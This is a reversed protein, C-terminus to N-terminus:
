SSDGEKNPSSTRQAKADVDSSSAGTRQAFDSNQNESKSDSSQGDSKVSDSRQGDPKISDSRQGDIHSKLSHSRQGDSKISDPRQGDSKSDATQAHTDDPIYLVGDKGLIAGVGGEEGRPVTKLYKNKEHREAVHDHHNPDAQSALDLGLEEAMKQEEHQEEPSLERIGGRKSESQFESDMENREGPPLIELEKALQQFLIRAENDVNNLNFYAAELLRALALLYDAQGELHSFNTREQLVRVLEVYLQNLLPKGKLNSDKMLQDFKFSLQKSGDENSVLKIVDDDLNGKASGKNGRTIVKVEMHLDNSGVKMKYKGSTTQSSAEDPGAGPKIEVWESDTLEEANGAQSPTGERKGEPGAPHGPPAKGDVHIEESPAEEGDAKPIPKYTLIVEMEPHAQLAELLETGDKHFLFVMPIQVDQKGDGSMAFLPSTESSSGANHDIVIGGIAGAKIINRAKDIFMCDGRELIAIRGYLDDPNEVPGCGKFPKTVGVSGMLPPATKLDVGFQAPGASLQLHAIEDPFVVQILLPEHQAEHQQHKSLEIMEQMFLMGEEADLATAAESATHLLQVRGDSMTVLRIGMRRLAELQERNGAIFNIARLRPRDMNRKPKPCVTEVMDKLSKRLSDAYNRDDPFLYQTNPCTNHFGEESDEDDPTSELGEEDSSKLIYSARTIKIPSSGPTTKNVISLSLPLLHAETTFLFEDVDFLLDDKEAFLLYLYKFTEALVYSDMQDEHSGKTVDRIAAFGCPVRAHEELNEMVKKGVDLYHHDGTAKYLFYTSEVFEPRLPHQGWHVRFDTTFAEPLFNHRQMVQYLMEHTEIAPRIDGKLVQLGPWFALLSDMYHRSNAQPKHMQVDVLLPGQSIYKMVADYHKNFRDLYTDDGLLIYAKLVYEYYSDIGAGVGSDRRVWDGSHINIVTGVLDTSRHRQRWIFDMAKRAKEEFVPDGTLRSLAAFELIMTGACATCTDKEHGTRAVTKALGYKLNVRPFPMGTSTNFAPLLRQGVDKAMLLLEENYWMMGQRKKKLFAAACHAGLLGGLVRINTEFVSVVIDSDFRAERIVNKVAKEFGELDGLVILTDLADILTLTFNGLADDIDGRSPETGRNRGKCSLPMLEDYPFAYNMYSDFAHNFMELVKEKLEKRETTSMANAGDEVVLLVFMLIFIVMVARQSGM